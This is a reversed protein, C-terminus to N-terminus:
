DQTSGIGGQKLQSAYSERILNEWPGTV